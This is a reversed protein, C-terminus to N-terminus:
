RAGERLSWDIVAQRVSLRSFIGQRSAQPRTDIRRLVTNGVVLLVVPWPDAQHQSASM